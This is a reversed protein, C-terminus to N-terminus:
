HKALGVFYSKFYKRMEIFALTRFHFSNKTFLMAERSVIETMESFSFGHLGSYNERWFAPIATPGIKITGDVTVTFHVGLFPLKLDPVPYINTRVDVKNKTYKLYLGKFPLISYDEAFGFDKAIKDAYLGAANIVIGAEIEGSSTLISDKHRGIYQVGTRIAGGMAIFRKRMAACIAVPDVTSTEPCFLAEGIHNVNPEIKHAEAASVKEIVCGNRQARRYIEALREIENEETAVVLKGNNRVPIGEAECLKKIAHNGEICFKAKLSDSSYYIGSHLVGSNRGSAHQAVDPEKEIILVKSGPKRETLNVGLALGIVGGGIIVYDVSQM